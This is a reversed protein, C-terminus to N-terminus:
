KNYSHLVSIVELEGEETSMLNAPIRGNLHKNSTGMWHRMLLEDGGLHSHLLSYIQVIRFDNSWHMLGFVEAARCAAKRLLQEDNLTM